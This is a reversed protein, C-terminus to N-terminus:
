VANDGVSVMRSSTLLKRSPTTMRGASEDGHAGESMIIDALANRTAAVCYTSSRTSRRAGYTKRM